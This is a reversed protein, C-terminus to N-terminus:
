EFLSDFNTAKDEQEKEWAELDSLIEEPTMGAKGKGSKIFELRYAQPTNVFIGKVREDAADLGAQSLSRKDEPSYTGPGEDSGKDEAQRKLDAAGFGEAFTIEQTSPNVFIPIDGAMKFEFGKPVSFDFKEPEGGKKNFRIIQGDGANFYEYEAQQNAPLNSNYYAQFLVENDFGSDDLLNKYEDNTLEDLSVGTKAMTVLDARAEDKLTKLYEQKATASQLAYTRESNIRDQARQAARSNIDAIKALKADQIAKMEGKNTAVTKSIEANGFDSGLLGGRAAGSRTMGLRNASDINEQAMRAAFDKEAASLEGQAADLEERRIRAEDAPSLLGTMGSRGGTTTPTVHRFIGSDRIPDMGEAKIRNRETAEANGEVISYDNGGSTTGTSSKPISSSSSKSSKSPSSSSSSNFTRRERSTKFAM